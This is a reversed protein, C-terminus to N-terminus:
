NSSAIIQRLGKSLADRVEKFSERFQKASVRENNNDEKRSSLMDVAPGSVKVPEIPLGLDNEIPM